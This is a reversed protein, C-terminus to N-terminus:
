ECYLLSKSVTMVAGSFALLVAKNVGAGKVELQSIGNYSWDVIQRGVIYLYWCYFATEPVNMASQAATFGNHSNWAPWGYIHDVEGYLAYPQWVPSHFKGGPMTLPRLHVYLTDWVVLPISVILWALLAFPPKHTYDLPEQLTPSSTKTDM